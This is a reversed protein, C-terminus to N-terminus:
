GGDEQKSAARELRALVRLTLALESHVVQAMELDTLEHGAQVRDLIVDLGDMQDTREPPLGAVRRTLNGLHQALALMIDTHDKNTAWTWEDVRQFALVRAETMRRDRSNGGSMEAAVM